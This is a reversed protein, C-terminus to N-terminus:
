KELINCNKYKPTYNNLIENIVKNNNQSKPTNLSNLM